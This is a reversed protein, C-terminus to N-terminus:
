RISNSLTSGADEGVKMTRSAGGGVETMVRNTSGSVEMMMRSTAGFM